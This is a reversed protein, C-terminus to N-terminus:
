ADFGLVIIIRTQATVGTNRVVTGFGLEEVLAEATARDSSRGYYVRTTSLGRERSDGPTGGLTWGKGELNAAVQKAKGNVSTSNLVKIPISKDGGGDPEPEPDAEEEGDDQNEGQDGAAAAATTSPTVAAASKPVAKTTSGADDLASAASLNSKDEDVGDGGALLQYGGGLVLLVVAVGAAVPLGAAVATPRARHAGRRSAEAPPSYRDDSAPPRTATM